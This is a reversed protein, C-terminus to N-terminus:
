GHKWTTYKETLLAEDQLVRRGDKFPHEADDDHQKVPCKGKLKGAHWSICHYHQSSSPGQSRSPSFVLHVSQSCQSPVTWVWLRMWVLRFVHGYQLGSACRLAVIPKNIGKLSRNNFSNLSENGAVNMFSHFWALATATWPLTSEVKEVGPAYIHQWQEAQITSVDSSLTELSSTQMKCMACTHFWIKDWSLGTRLSWCLLIKDILDLFHVTGESINYGMENLPEPGNRSWTVATISENYSFSHLSSSPRASPIVTTLHLSFCLSLSSSTHTNCPSCPWVGVGQKGLSFPHICYMWLFLRDISSYIFTKTLWPSLVNQLAIMKFQM